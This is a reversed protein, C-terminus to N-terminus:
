RKLRIRSEYYFGDVFPEPESRRPLLLFAFSFYAVEPAPQDSGRHGHARCTLPEQTPSSPYMSAALSALGSHSPFVRSSLIFTDHLQYLQDAAAAINVAETNDELLKWGTIPTGAYRWIKGDEHRQYLAGSSALIQITSPNQDLLQWGAIPPSTYLWIKGDNHRQYLSKGSTTIDVTQANTDLIQWNGRKFLNLTSPDITYYTSL